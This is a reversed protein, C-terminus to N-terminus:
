SPPPQNLGTAAIAPVRKALVQNAISNPKLDTREAALARAAGSRGGRLAAEFATLAILDRQAHSGGFRQAIPRVALLGDLAEDWAGRGFAVLARCLPLGVERTMMANTGGEGARREMVALLRQAAAERGTAIMALM